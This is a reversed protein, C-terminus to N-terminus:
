VKPREKAPPGVNPAPEIPQDFDSPRVMNLKLGASQVAAARQLGIRRGDASRSRWSTTRTIQQPHQRYLWTVTPENYGDTLESLAAFMAIDEDSPIGVWGGLARLSTTRMMLGACHIPWNAGHDAAWANVTGASLLGHPLASKWTIRQGDPMLDDAQGVSWHIPNLAFRPILTALAHPLLVDDSDLVQVLHGSARALAFNRTAAIGLQAGNAQYRVYDLEAFRDALSPNKGDEQVVWELEWGPPPTQRQVGEITQALYPASSETAATLITVLPM